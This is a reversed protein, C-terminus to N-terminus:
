NDSSFNISDIFNIIKVNLEDDSDDNASKILTICVNITGCDKNCVKMIHLLLASMREAMCSPTCNFQQQVSGQFCKLPSLERSITEAETKSDSVKNTSRRETTADIKNSTQRNTKIPNRSSCKENGM